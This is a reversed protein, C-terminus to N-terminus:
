WDIFWGIDCIILKFNFIEICRFIWVRMNLIKFLIKIFVIEVCWLFLLILLIKFIIVVSFIEIGENIM